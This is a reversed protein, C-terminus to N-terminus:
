GSAVDRFVLPKPPGPRRRPGADAPTRTVPPAPRHVSDPAIHQAM